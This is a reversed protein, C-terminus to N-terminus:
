RTKDLEIRASSTVWLRLRRAREARTLGLFLLRSSKLHKTLRRVYEDDHCGLWDGLWAEAAKIEAFVLFHDHIGVDRILHGFRARLPALSSEAFGAQGGGTYDLLPSVVMNIPEGTRDSWAQCADCLPEIWSRM